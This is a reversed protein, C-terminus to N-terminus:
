AQLSGMRGEFYDREAQRVAEVSDLVFPGHFILPLEAPSGGLVILDADQAEIELRSEGSALVALQGTAAALGNVKASGAAVYVAVEFEAPLDLGLRAPNGFAAHALLTPSSTRAPSEIGGLTGGVVRVRVGDKVFVPLADADFHQYLPERRKQARPLSTWLQLGHLGGPSPREAHVIGRGATMWQVGGGGVIGEHGASDRHNMGGDFLYTVTEIGAHPHPPTGEDGEPVELPGFHDLFVWPGVSKMAAGPLARRVRLTDTVAAWHSDLVRANM